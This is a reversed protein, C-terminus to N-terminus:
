PNALRELTALRTELETQQAMVRNVDEHLAEIEGTTVNTRAFDNFAAKLARLEQQVVTLARNITPLGDLKAAMPKMRELIERQGELLQALDTETM